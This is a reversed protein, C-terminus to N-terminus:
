GIRRLEIQTSDGSDQLAQQAMALGRAMVGAQWDDADLASPFQALALAYVQVQAACIAELVEGPTLSSKIQSTWATVQQDVLRLLAGVLAAELGDFTERARLSGRLRTPDTPDIM